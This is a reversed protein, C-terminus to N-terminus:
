DDASPLRTSGLRDHKEKLYAAGALINDHPDFPDLGLGHRVSLEVWTGPMLQMLGMAGRSSISHDDGASEVEIVARIWRAAVAFRTSAGAIFNAFRDISPPHSTTQARVGAEFLTPAVILCMSQAVAAVTGAIARRLRLSAILGALKRIHSKRQLSPSRKGTKQASRYPFIPSPETSGWNTSPTNHMHM